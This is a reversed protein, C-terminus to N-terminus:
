RPMFAHRLLPWRLPMFIFFRQFYHYLAIDASFIPPWRRFGALAYPLSLLIQLMM